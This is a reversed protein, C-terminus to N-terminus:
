EIQVEVVDEAWDYYSCLMKQLKQAIEAENEASKVSVIVKKVYGVEGLRETSALQVESHCDIVGDALGVLANIQKQLKEAYQSLLKEQSEAITEAQAALMGDSYPALNESLVLSDLWNEPQILKLIPNLITVIIFLGMVMQIFPQMKSNPLLLDMMTTLFVIVTVNVLLEKM